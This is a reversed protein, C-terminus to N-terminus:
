AVTVFGVTVARGTLDLAVALAIEGLFCIMELAVVDRTLGIFGRIGMCFGFVVAPLEDEVLLLTAARGGDLAILFASVVAPVRAPFFGVM